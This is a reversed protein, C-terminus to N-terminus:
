LGKCEDQSLLSAFNVDGGSLEPLLVRVGGGGRGIGRLGAGSSLHCPPDTLADPHQSSVSNM